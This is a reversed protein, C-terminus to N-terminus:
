KEAFHLQFRSKELGDLWFSVGRPTLWKKRHIEVQFSANREHKARFKRSKKVCRLAGTIHDLM